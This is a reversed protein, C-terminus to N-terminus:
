SQRMRRNVSIIDPFSTRGNRIFSYKAITRIPMLKYKSLIDMLYTGRPETKRGDWATSKANLNGALILASARRRSVRIVEELDKIYSEFEWKCMNPSCYESICMTDEVKVSIVGKKAVLTENAKGM